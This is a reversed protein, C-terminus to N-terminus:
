VPLQRAEAKRRAQERLYLPTEEAMARATAPRARMRALYASVAPWQALPVPAAVTWNLITALYADAVSFADLLFERDRLHEDLVALPRASKELAYAKAGEPAKPDLLPVFAAKHLETNTFAIWQQLRARELRGRPALGADPYADAVYQLVAVNERILAGEDTRLVPVMGLPNVARFDVGDSTRQTHTDVEIFRAEAGAEYFVIRTAMSCALPSFYLDM